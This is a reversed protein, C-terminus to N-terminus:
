RLPPDMTGDISIKVPNVCEDCGGKGTGIWRYVDFKWTRDHKVQVWEPFWKPDENTNTDDVSLEIAILDGLLKSTSVTFEGVTDREFDDGPKDLLINKTSDRAGILKIFVDADTGSEKRDSTSIRIGYEFALM